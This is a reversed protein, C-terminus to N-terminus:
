KFHWIFRFFGVYKGSTATVNSEMATRRVVFFACIFFSASIDDRYSDLDGFVM